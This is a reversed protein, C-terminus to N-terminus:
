YVAQIQFKRFANRLLATEIIINLTRFTWTYRLNRVASGIEENEKREWKKRIFIFNGVKITVLSTLNM